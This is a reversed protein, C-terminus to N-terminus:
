YMNKFSLHSCTCTCTKILSSLLFFSLLLCLCVFLCPLAVCCVWPERVSYTCTSGAYFRCKILSLRQVDIESLGLYGALVGFVHVIFVPEVFRNVIWVKGEESEVRLELEMEQSSEAITKGVWGGHLYVESMGLLTSSPLLRTIDGDLLCQLYRDSHPDDQLLIVVRGQTLDGSFMGIVKGGAYINTLATDPKLDALATRTLRVTHTFQELEQKTKFAAVQKQFVDRASGPPEGTEPNPPSYVDKDGGKPSSGPSAEREENETVPPEKDDVSEMREGEGEEVEAGKEEAGGGEKEAGEDEEVEGGEVEMSEVAEGESREEDM